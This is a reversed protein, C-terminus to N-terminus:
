FFVWGLANQFVANNKHMEVVSQHFLTLSLMDQRHQTNQM